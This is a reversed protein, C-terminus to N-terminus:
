LTMRNRLKKINVSTGLILRLMRDVTLGTTNTIKFDFRLLPYVCQADACVVLLGQRVVNKVGLANLASCARYTM